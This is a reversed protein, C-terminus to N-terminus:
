SDYNLKWIPSSSDNQRHSAVLSVKPAPIDGPLHTNDRHQNITYYITEITAKSWPRTMSSGSRAITSVWYTNSPLRPQAPPWYSNENTRTGYRISMKIISPIRKKAMSNIPMGLWLLKAWSRRSSRHRYKRNQIRVWYYQALVRSSSSAAASCFLRSVNAPNRM